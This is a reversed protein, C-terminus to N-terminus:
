NLTRRYIIYNHYPKRMNEPPLTMFDGYDERLSEKYCIPVKFMEGNFEMLSYNAYWKKEYIVHNNGWALVALGSLDGSTEESIFRAIDEDVRQSYNKGKVFFLLQRLLLKLFGKYFSSGKVGAYISYFSNILNIKEFIPFTLNKDISCADLPYVDIFVGLDFHPLLPDTSIYQYNMDSVRPIGFPYGPTTSRDCIRLEGKYETKMYRVFRNFDKRPLIIDIDDDWPIFGKHRVAGLLTGYALFYQFGNRDCIKVVERLVQFGAQQIEQLNLQKRKM